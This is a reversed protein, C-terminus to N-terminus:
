RNNKSTERGDGTPERGGGEEVSEGEEWGIRGNERTKEKSTFLRGRPPVRQEGGADRVGSGWHHQETTPLEM